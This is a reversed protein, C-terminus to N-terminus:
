MVLMGEAVLGPGFGLVVWPRPVGARRLRDAIFLVTPSSMNGHEALVDASHRVGAAGIGLAEAVAGLVRPGGPHVAWGGVEDIRLGAEGLWEGLWPRLHERILEPVRVSLRMEFGHDGIRWGMADASGPVLVSGFKALRGVGAPVGGASSGREGPGVVAAAAGDAFIANAVAHEPDDGYHYHLSCLEVAAVLVVGGGGAFASAVRLGNIAGHCGMFGVNTRSVRPSLGLRRIVYADVGPASMGTCSVTVLHTVEGAGIGADTLAGRAAESALEGARAEFVRARTGTSPGRDGDFKPSAFFGQWGEDELLVSGRRRVGSRRYLAEVARGDEKEGGRLERALAAAEAQAITGKPTALGLGRLLAESM